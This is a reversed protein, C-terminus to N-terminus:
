NSISVPKELNTSNLLERQSEKKSNLEANYAKALASFEEHSLGAVSLFFGYSKSLEDEGDLGCYKRMARTKTTDPILDTWKEISVNYHDSYAKVEDAHTTLTDRNVPFRGGGKQIVSMQWVNHCNFIYKDYEAPFVAHSNDVPQVMRSEFTKGMTKISDKVFNKYVEVTDTNTWQAHIWEIDKENLKVGDKKAADQLKGLMHARKAAGMSPVKVSSLKEMQDTVFDNVVDSEVSKLQLAEHIMRQIAQSDIDNMVHTEGELGVNSFDILYIEKM